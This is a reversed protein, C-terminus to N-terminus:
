LKVDHVCSSEFSPSFAVVFFSSDLTKIVSFTSKALKYWKALKNVM